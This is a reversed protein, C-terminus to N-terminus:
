TGDANWVYGRGDIVQVDIIKKDDDPSGMTYLVRSFTFNPRTRSISRRGWSSRNIKDRAQSLPSHRGNKM